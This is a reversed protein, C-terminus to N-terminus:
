EHRSGLSDKIHRFIACEPWDACVYRKLFGIDTINTRRNAVDTRPPLEIPDLFYFQQEVFEVANANSLILTSEPFLQCLLRSWQQKPTATLVTHFFLQGLLLFSPFILANWPREVIIGWICIVLLIFLPFHIWFRHILTLGPRDFIHNLLNWGTVHRFVAWM